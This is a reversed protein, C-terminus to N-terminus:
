FLLHSFTANILPRFETLIISYSDTNPSQKMQKQKSMDQTKTTTAMHRHQPLWTSGHAGGRARDKNQKGGTRSRVQEWHNGQRNLGQRAEHERDSQRM